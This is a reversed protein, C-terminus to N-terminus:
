NPLQLLMKRFFLRDPRIQGLLRRLHRRCRSHRQDKKQTWVPERLCQRYTIYFRPKFFSFIMCRELIAASKAPIGKAKIQEDGLKALEIGANLTSGGIDVTVAPLPNVTSTFM